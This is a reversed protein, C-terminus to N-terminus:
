STLTNNYLDKQGEVQWICVSGQFPFFPVVNLSQQSTKLPLHKNFKSDTFAIYGKDGNSLYSRMDM